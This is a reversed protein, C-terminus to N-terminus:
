PDTCACTFQLCLSLKDLKCLWSSYMQQQRTTLVSMPTQLCCTIISITLICSDRHHGKSGRCAHVKNSSACIMTALHRM